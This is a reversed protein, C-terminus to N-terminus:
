GFFDRSRQCLLLHGLEITGHPEDYQSPLAAGHSGVIQFIKLLAERLRIRRVLHFLRGVIAGQQGAGLSLHALDRTFEATVPATPPFTLPATACRASLRIEFPTTASALEDQWQRRTSKSIYDACAPV